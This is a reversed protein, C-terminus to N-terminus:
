NSRGIAVSVGVVWLPDNTNPGRNPLPNGRLEISFNDAYVQAGASVILGAGTSSGTCDGGVWKSTYRTGGIGLSFSMGFNPLGIKARGDILAYTLNFSENCLGHPSRLEGSSTGIVIVPYVPVISFIRIERPFHYSAMLSVGNKSLHSGFALGGGLNWRKISSKPQSTRKKAPPANVQSIIPEGTIPDYQTPESEVSEVPIPLGTLPDYQVTTDALTQTWTSVGQASLATFLLPVIMLLLICARGVPANKRM